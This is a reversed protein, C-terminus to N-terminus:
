FTTTTQLMESLEHQLLKNPLILDRPRLTRQRQHQEQLREPKRRRALGPKAQLRRLQGAMGGCATRDPLTRDSPALLAGPDQLARRADARQRQHARAVQPAGGLLLLPPWEDSCKGKFDWFGSM